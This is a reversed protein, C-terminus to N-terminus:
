AASSYASASSGPSARAARARAAYTSARVPRFRPPGSPRRPATRAPARARRPPRSPPTESPTRAPPAPASGSADPPSAASAFALTLRRRARAAASVAARSNNARASGCTPSTRSAERAASACAISPSSAAREPSTSCAASSSPPSDLGVHRGPQRPEGHLMLRPEGADGQVQAVGLRRLPRRARRQLVARQVHLRRTMGLQVKLEGFDEAAGPLEPGGGFVGQLGRVPGVFRALTGREAGPGPMLEATEQDTLPPPGLGGLYQLRRQGIQGGVHVAVTRDHLGLPPEAVTEGFEAIVALGGFAPQLGGVDGAVPGFLAVVRHEGMEGGLGEAVGPQGGLRVLRVGAGAVEPPIEAVDM